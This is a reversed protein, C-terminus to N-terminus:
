SPPPTATRASGAANEFVRTIRGQNGFDITVKLLRPMTQEPSEWQAHWELPETPEKPFVAYQISLDACGPLVLEPTPAQRRARAEGIFQSTRWLGDIGNNEKCQYTVFHVRAPSQRTAPSAIYWAVSHEEMSPWPLKGAEDGYSAARDDYIITNAVDREFREMAMRRRQLREGTSTVQQWVMLGGRLHAGLGVFLVALMTAAVILEIFTFGSPIAFQSSRIAFQVGTSPFLNSHRMRFEFNPIRFPEGSM